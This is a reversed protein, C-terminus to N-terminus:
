GGGAGGLARTLHARFAGLAHRRCRGGGGRATPPTRALFPEVVGDPPQGGGPLESPHPCRRDAARVARVSPHRVRGGGEYRPLSPGSGHRGGSGGRCPGSLWGQVLIECVPSRQAGSGARTESPVENVGAAEVM